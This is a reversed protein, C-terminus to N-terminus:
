GGGTRHEQAQPRRYSPPPTERAQEVALGQALAQRVVEQSRPTLREETTQALCEAPTYGRLQFVSPSVYLPRSQLDFVAIVDSSHEALIRYLREGEGVAGGPPRKAPDTM